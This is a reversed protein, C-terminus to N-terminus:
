GQDENGHINGMLRSEPLSKYDLDSIEDDAWMEVAVLDRDKVSQGIKYIKMIINNKEVEIPKWKITM